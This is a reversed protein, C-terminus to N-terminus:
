IELPEVKLEGRPREIVKLPEEKKKKEPKVKKIPEAGAPKTKRPADSKKEETKTQKAKEKYVLYDDMAKKFKSDFTTHQWLRDVLAKGTWNVGVSGQLKHVQEKIKNHDGTNGRLAGWMYLDELKQRTKEDAKWNVGKADREAIGLFTCFDHFQPNMQWDGKGISFTLPAFDAM